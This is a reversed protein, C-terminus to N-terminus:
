IPDEGTVFKKKITTLATRYGRTEDDSWGEFSEGDLSDIVDGLVDPDVLRSMRESHLMALFIHKASQEIKRLQRVEKELNAIKALDELQRSDSRCEPAEPLFRRIRETAKFLTSHAITLGDRYQENKEQLAIIQRKLDKRSPQNPNAM